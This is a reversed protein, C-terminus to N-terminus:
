YDINLYGTEDSILSTIILAVHFKVIGLVGTKDIIPIDYM